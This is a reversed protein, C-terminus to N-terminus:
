HSVILVLQVGDRVNIVRHFDIKGHEIVHALWIAPENFPAVVLEKAPLGKQDLIVKITSVGREELVGRIVATFVTM